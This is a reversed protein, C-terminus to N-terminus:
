IKPIVYGMSALNRLLATIAAEVNRCHQRNEEGIRRMMEGESIGEPENGAGVGFRQAVFETCMDYSTDREAKLYEGAVVIADEASNALYIERLSPSDEFEPLSALFEDKDTFLTSDNADFPLATNKDQNEM